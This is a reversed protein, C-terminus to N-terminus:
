KHRGDEEPAIMSLFPIYYVADNESFFVCGFDAMLFILIRIFVLLDAVVLWGGWENGAAAWDSSGQGRL